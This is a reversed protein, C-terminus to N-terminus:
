LVILFYFVSYDSNIKSIELFDKDIPSVFNKLKNIYDSSDKVDLNSNEKYYKM